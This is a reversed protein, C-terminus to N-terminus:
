FVTCQSTTLFVPENEREACLIDVADLIHMGAGEGANRFFEEKTELTLVTNLAFVRIVQRVHNHRKGFWDEIIGSVQLLEKAAKEVYAATKNFKFFVVPGGWKRGLIVFGDAGRDGNPGFTGPMAPGAECHRLMERFRGIAAKEGLGEEERPAGVSVGWGGILRWLARFARKEFRKAVIGGERVIRSIEAVQRADQGRGAVVELSSYSSTPAFPYVLDRQAYARQAYEAYRGVAREEEDREQVDDVSKLLIPREEEDGTDVGSANPDVTMESQARGGDIAEVELRRGIDVFELDPASM